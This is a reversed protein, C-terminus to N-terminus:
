GIWANKFRGLRALVDHPLGSSAAGGSGPLAGVWFENRVSEVGDVDVTSARVLPDRTDASLRLRLLDTVAGVLTPPLPDDFGARYEVLVQRGRWRSRRGNVWRELVGAEGDLSRADLTIPEGDHSVSVIEVKHRRSLVLADDDCASYTERLLERRLTPEGGEGVVVRCADAIEAAIRLGAATLDADRSDDSSSLGAAVRLAEIPALSLDEAAEIVALQSRM